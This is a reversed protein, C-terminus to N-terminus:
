ASAGATLREANSSEIKVKQPKVEDRVPITVELVGEHYRANISSGDLRDGLRVQRRHTGSPRERMLWTVGETEEGPREVTVTLVNQEVTLDVNDPDVGPLDFRLTYEGDKEFADMPMMGGPSGNGFFSFMRDMEEMPNTFRMTM